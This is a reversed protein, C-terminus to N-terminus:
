YVLHKCTKIVQRFLSTKLGFKQFTRDRGDGEAKQNLNSLAQAALSESSGLLPLLPSTLSLLLTATVLSLSKLRHHM